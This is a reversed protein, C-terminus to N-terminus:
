NNNLKYHGRKKGLRAESMKQRTKSSVIKGKLSESMKRKTEESHTKGFFPSLKGKRFDSIKRKTKASRKKGKNADSIKRRTEESHKKGKQSESMKRKSEESHIHGILADSIKRKTEDSCKRGSTGEGGKTLNCLNKLGIEAILEKEKNFAETENKTIFVKKYKIKYGSSLIKKITYYLHKNNNPIRDRKVKDVHLYMRKKQGKGIYFPLGTISDILFYIYYIM